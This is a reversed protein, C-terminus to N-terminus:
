GGKSLVDTKGCIISKQTSDKQFASDQVYKPLIKGMIYNMHRYFLTRATAKTMVDSYNDSTSIRVLEILDNKVWDQLVFNKVEM